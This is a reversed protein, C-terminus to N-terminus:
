LHYTSRQLLGSPRWLADVYMCFQHLFESNYLRTSPVVYKAQVQPCSQEQPWIDNLNGQLDGCYLLPKTFCM